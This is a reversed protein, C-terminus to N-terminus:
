LSITTIAGILSTLVIALTDGSTFVYSLGLQCGSFLLSHWVGKQLTIAGKENEESMM